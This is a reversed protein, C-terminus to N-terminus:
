SVVVAQGHVVFVGGAGVDPYGGVFGGYSVVVLGVVVLVEGFGVVIPGQVVFVGGFGVVYQGQVVFVGGFGVVYQGQVVVGSWGVLLGAGKSHLTLPLIFSFTKLYANVPLQVITHNCDHFNM